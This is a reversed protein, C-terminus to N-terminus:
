KQKFGWEIVSIVVSGVVLVIAGMLFFQWYEKVFAWIRKIWHWLDSFIDWGCGSSSSKNDPDTDGSQKNDVVGLNYVVGGTEYKLRLIMVDTVETSYFTVHGPQNGPEQTFDTEYFRLVWQKGALATKTEDTLDNEACFKDVSEIRNWTHKKGFIHNGPNSAEEESFLTVQDTSLEGYTIKSSGNLWKASRHSFMVDAEFLTDIARDSSFAVYHSDTNEYVGGGFQWKYGDKYRVFGVHKDTIEIVETKQKSYTVTGNVTCATFLWGVANPVESITNDDTLREDISEDWKRLINSIDYYRVTDGKVAFDEVRYKFLTGSSSVLSLKYNVYKLSDNIATSINISTGTVKEGSPQYVYVFLKGDTSEAIQFLILSHDAANVPYDEAKFSSDKQLDTLVSNDKEAAYATMLSGACSFSACGKSCSRYFFVGGIVFAVAVVVALIARLVKM